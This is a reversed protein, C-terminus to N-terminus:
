DGKVIRISDEEFHTTSFEFLESDELAEMQHRLGIPIEFVDGVNMIKEEAEELLDGYSFRIILKGKTLFFTESKIEHRHFSCKKGKDFVLVKGCYQDNNVVWFERGWGKLHIEPKKFNTM